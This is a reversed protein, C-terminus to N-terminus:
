AHKTGNAPPSEAVDAFLEAMDLRFGPLVSGGDLVDTRNVVVIPATPSTYVHIKCQLPWVVWVVEVGAQFYESIKDEIEQAKDNPSVVEIALNPVVNWANDTPPIPQTKAWRQYSVFAVDPRRDRNLPAPLHFLAETLVRGLGHTHAFTGLYIHLESAIWVSFIGMPPTRVRKGDIIEYLEDDGIVLNEAPMPKTLMETTM